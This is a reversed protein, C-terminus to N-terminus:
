FDMSDKPFFDKGEAAQPIVRLLTQVSLGAVALLPSFLIAMAFGLKGQGQKETLLPSLSSVRPSRALNSFFFLAALRGPTEPAFFRRHRSHARDRELRVDRRPSARAGGRARAVANASAARSFRFFWVIAHRVEIKEAPAKPAAKVKPASKSGGGVSPASISPLSLSPLGVALNKTKKEPTPAKKKTQLEAFQAAALAKADASKDAIQGLENMALAPQALMTLALAGAVASSKAQDASSAKAVTQTRVKKPAAVRAAVVPTAVLSMMAEHHTDSVVHANLHPPPRFSRRNLRARSRDRFGRRLRALHISAISKRDCWVARENSVNGYADDTPFGSLVDGHWAPDTQPKLRCRNFRRKSLKLSLRMRFHTLAIIHSTLRLRVVFTRFHKESGGLRKRFLRFRSQKWTGLEAARVGARAPRPGAARKKRPRRGRRVMREVSTACPAPSACPVDRVATGSEGDRM